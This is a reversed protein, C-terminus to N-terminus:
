RMGQNGWLRELLGEVSPSMPDSMLLEQMKCTASNWELSYFFGATSNPLLFKGDTHWTHSSDCIRGGAWIARGQVSLGSRHKVKCLISVGVFVMTTSTVKVFGQQSACCKQVGAAKKKKKLNNQFNITSGWLFFIFFQLQAVIGLNFQTLDQFGSKLGSEVTGMSKCLFTAHVPSNRGTKSRWSQQTFASNSDRPKIWYFPM